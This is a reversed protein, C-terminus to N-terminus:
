GIVCYRRMEPGEAIPVRRSDSANSNRGGLGCRAGRIRISRRVRAPKRNENRAGRPGKGGEETSRRPALLTNISRYGPSGSLGFTTLVETATGGPECLGSEGGWRGFELEDVISCRMPRRRSPLTMQRTPSRSLAEEVECRGGAVRGRKQYGACVTAMWDVGSVNIVNMGVGDNVGRQGVGDRRGRNADRM